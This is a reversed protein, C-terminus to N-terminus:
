AREGSLLGQERYAAWVMEPTLRRLCQYQAAGALPCHRQFCPRCPVDSVLLKWRGGLPGTAVPDTSGFLAIGPRGLAAALHMAGSDNALVAAAAALVSMLEPLGTRGALNLTGPRGQLIRDADAQDRATGVAVVQGGDQLWLRTVEAFHEAPWQKAPGFAAGPAIALWRGTATLGLRHAAATSVQLPPCVSDQSVDGLSSALELYYSLQHCEGVGEGRKWEPLRHNLLLSRCRGRRGIRWPIGCRWVDLAAGFSNPFVMAIGPALRRVQAIEDASVRSGAMPVVASVWPSARWVEALGAPALVFLGCAPPLMGALQSAAPLTMLCDGLWNTSRILLGNQWKGAADLRRARSLAKLAPRYSM